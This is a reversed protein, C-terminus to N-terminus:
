EVASVSFNAFDTHVDRPTAWSADGGGFFTSFFIGEIKLADITRFQLGGQEIVLDGNVWVRIQGDMRNPHNLTVEQELKYWVGPQFQWAGRGMSTGYEESSPLYAYLEGNGAQRWMLRTSFGNTGDPINGGSAGEGGFLGPLKGGKVFDFNESFRVYYSLRLQHQAPLALDAYFQAGGLPVGEQRSVSPSASGAPYTVRLIQEFRGQSDSIVDLNEFGWSSEGRIGWDDMWDQNGWNGIWLPDTPISTHDKSQITSNVATQTSHSVATSPRCSAVALLCLAAVSKLISRIDIAM